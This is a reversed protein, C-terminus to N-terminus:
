SRKLSESNERFENHINYMQNETDLAMRNSDILQHGQEMVEEGTSM